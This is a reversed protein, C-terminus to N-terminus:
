VALERAHRRKKSGTDKAALLQRLKKVARDIVDLWQQVTANQPLPIEAADSGSVNSETGTEPESSSAVHSTPSKPESSSSSPSSDSEPSPDSSTSDSKTSSDSSPSNPKTSSDSSPSDPKTSSYSSPSDSKPSSYSSLPKSHPAGSSYTAPHSPTGTSLSGTAATSNFAAGSKPQSNTPETPTSTQKEGTDTPTYTQKEGASYLPPGPIIYDFHNYVDIDIGPDDAKYLKQGLTGSALEDTGSGTIVLNICQPYNQAGDPLMADHLSIIEHRLVYEGKAITSPIKVTWKNGNKMLKESIFHGMKHRATNNALYGGEEIKNFLLTTKDVKACPGQCKALYSIIPGEHSVPWTTWQLEISSGAEVPVSHEAPTADNHCIIDPTGYQSPRIFRYDHDNPLSWGVKAQSDLDWRVPNYGPYTNGNANVSKVVGHAVVSATLGLAILFSEALLM